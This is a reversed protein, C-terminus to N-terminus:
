IGFFSIRSNTYYMQAGTTNEVYTKYFTGSASCSDLWMVAGSLCEFGANASTTDSGLKTDTSVCNINWSKSNTIDICNPGYNRLYNGNLRVVMCGDHATSGNDIKNTNVWTGGNDRGTCNIEVGYCLRSFSSIHYNFGDLANKAATCNIFIANSGLLTVGNSETGYKFTCNKAYINGHSLQFPSSGGELDINELYYTYTNQIPLGKLTKFFIYIEEGPVRNDSTHVYVNNSEDVYWSGATAEVADISSVHTLETYDGYSDLVSSDFVRGTNTRLVRYTHTKGTALVWTDSSFSQRQSIIARGSPCIISMNRAVPSLGGSWYGNGTIVHSYVGAALIIVDVDPKELADEILGLPTSETLGDNSSSGTNVNVYYTKGQPRLSDLDCDSYFGPDNVGDSGVYFNPLTFGFNFGPPPILKKETEVTGSYTRLQDWVSNTLYVSIFKTAKDTEEVKALVKTVSGTTNLTIDKSAVGSTLPIWTKGGDLSYGIYDADPATIKITDVTEGAPEVVMLVNDAADLATEATSPTITGSSTEIKTVGAYTISSTFMGTCLIKVMIKATHNDNDPLYKSVKGPYQYVTGSETLVVQFTSETRNRFATELANQGSDGSIYLASFECDGPRYMKLTNKQVLLNKASTINKSEFEGDPVLDSDPDVGKVEFGNIYFRTLLTDRHDAM